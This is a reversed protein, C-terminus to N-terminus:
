GSGILFGVIIAGIMAPILGRSKKAQSPQAVAIGTAEVPNAAAIDVLLKKAVEYTAAVGAVEETQGGQAGKGKGTAAVTSVKGSRVDILQVTVTLEAEGKSENFDYVDVSGIMALNASILTALKQAKAAGEITTDIPQALEKETIQQERMARDVSAVRPDFPVVSYCRTEALGENILLFLDNAYQQVYEVKSTAIGSGVALPFLALSEKRVMDAGHSAQTCQLILLGVAALKWCTHIVNSMRKV